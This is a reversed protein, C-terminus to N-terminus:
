ELGEVNALRLRIRGPIHEREDILAVASPLQRAGEKMRDFGADGAASSSPRASTVISSNGAEGGALASM